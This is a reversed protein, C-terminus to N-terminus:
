CNVAWCFRGGFRFGTPKVWMKLEMDTEEDEVRLSSEEVVEDAEDWV